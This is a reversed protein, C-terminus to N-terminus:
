HHEMLVPSLGIAEDNAVERYSGGEIEPKLIYHETVVDLFFQLCHRFYIRM